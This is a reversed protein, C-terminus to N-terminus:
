RLAAEVAALRKVRRSTRPHTSILRGLGSRPPGVICLVADTRAQRLDTHPLWDDQHELKMLASALASPRGTLAAAAADASFERARSMVLLSLRTVWGVVFAPPVCLAALFWLTLALRAGGPIDSVLNRTWPALRPTLYGAFALLVRSPGSCIEMAAADRRALHAVEHALVAELEATDLLELLPSTLYIAGGRTWATAVVDHEVYVEPVPIDARMSLRRVIESADRSSMWYHYPDRLERAWASVMAGAGLLVIVALPLWAWAVVAVLVIAAVVPLVLAVLITLASIARAPPMPVRRRGVATPLSGPSAARYGQLGRSIGFILWALLGAVGMRHELGEQDGTVVAAVLAATLLTVGLLLANQELVTLNAARLLERPDDGM